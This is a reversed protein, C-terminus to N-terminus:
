QIQDKQKPNNKFLIKIKIGGDNVKKIKMEANNRELIRRAVYFGLGSSVDDMSSFPESQSNLISENIFKDRCLIRLLVENDSNEFPKLEIELSQFQESLSQKLKLYINMLANKIQSQDLEIFSLKEDYKKKIKIERLEKDVFVSEIAENNLLRIDTKELSSSTAEAFNLLQKVISNCRKAEKIIVDLEERNEEPTDPNKLLYQADAIIIGIPNNIEHAMSAALNGIGALNESRILRETTNVLEKRQNNIINIMHWSFLMVLWFFTIKATMGRSLLIADTDTNVLFVSMIFLISISFNVIFIEYTNKFLAFGRLILVFYLVYFDYQVYPSKNCKNTLYILLAAYVIDALFSFYCFSKIQHITIKRLYFFYSYAINLFLYTAFLAFLSSPIPRFYNSWLYILVTLILIAWKLPIIARREIRFLWLSYEHEKIENNEKIKPM